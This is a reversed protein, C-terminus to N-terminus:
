ALAKLPLGCAHTLGDMAAAHHAEVDERCAACTMRPKRYLAGCTRRETESMGPYERPEGTGYYYWSCNMVTHGHRALRNMQRAVQLAEARTPYNSFWTWVTM